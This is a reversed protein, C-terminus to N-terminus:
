LPRVLELMARKHKKVEERAWRVSKAWDKCQKKDAIFVDNQVVITRFTDSYEASRFHIVYGDGLDASMTSLGVKM